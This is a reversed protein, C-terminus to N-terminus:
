PNRGARIENIYFDIQDKTDPNIEIIKELETISNQRRGLQVYTAALSLRYELNEPNVEILAEWISAVSRIDGVTAYANIFRTDPVLVTGYLPVLLEEALAKNGAYIAGIGYLTQAEEYEPALEYATKFVVLAEDYRELALLVTAIGFHIQQKNPSLERAQEFTTLAEENRGVQSLFSGLFILHRINNPALEVQKRLEEETKQAFSASVAPDVGALGSIRTNIQGLQERVEISGGTGYSLAKEFLELNKTPGEEQPQIANLLATNTAILKFNFLYVVFLTVVLIGPAVFTTVDKTPLPDKKFKAFFRKLFGEREDTSAHHIYGLISFFLIYSMLNDFVFLNQFFYAAFLGTFISKEVFPLETKRWLLYLAIAFIGLYSALGLIGGAILWDFFINHARDFWPEQGYMNPNYYKNFVYNFNEQGWGLIPREKFGEIAMNWIMFRSKTTQEQLSINAFRSLVPSNEVFSTNKAVLFGGILVIVGVLTGIAVKKLKKNDHEFVAILITTILVGGILGLISGRTATLYLIILNLIIVGGYVYRWLKERWNRSLFVAGIYVHFLTYVALYAANGFRGDVRVGGQNIAFAGMIQLLGYVGMLASAFLTAQFFRTWLKETHLFSVVLFFYGFVHLLGVFGEMREFNSWFSKFPEVGFFDALGIIAVFAVTIGLLLSRKPLYERNLLALVAWSGLLVEVLIRFFFNKGTIFPFFMENFVLFPVVLPIAFIGGLLVKKLINELNM